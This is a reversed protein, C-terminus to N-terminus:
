PPRRPPDLPPRRPRHTTTPTNTTTPPNPTAAPKCTAPTLAPGTYPNAPSAAFTPTRNRISPSGDNRCLVALRRGGYTTTLAVISSTRLWRVPVTRTRVGTSTIPFAFHCVTLYPWCM